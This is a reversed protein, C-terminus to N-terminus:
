YDSDAILHDSLEDNKRKKPPSTTKELDFIFGVGGKGRRRSKKKEGDRIMAKLKREKGAARRGKM